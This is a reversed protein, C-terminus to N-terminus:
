PTPRRLWADLGPAVAANGQTAGGQARRVAAIEAESLSRAEPSTWHRIAVGGLLVLGLVGAWLALSRAQARDLSDRRWWHERVAGLSREAGTKAADSAREVRQRIADFSEAHRRRDSVSRGARHAADGCWGIAADMGRGLAALKDEFYGM